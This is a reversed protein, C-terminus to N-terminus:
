APCTPLTNTAPKCTPVSTSTSVTFTVSTVTVTSTQKLFAPLAAQLITSLFIRNGAVPQAYAPDYYPMPVAPRYNYLGNYFGSNVDQPLYGFPSVVFVQPDAARAERNPLQTAEVGQVASPAIPFQEEDEDDHLLGRRRRCNTTGTYAKTCTVTSTSTSVTTTTTTSTILFRANPGYYYPYYNYALNEGGEEATAMCAVIFVVFVSLSLRM